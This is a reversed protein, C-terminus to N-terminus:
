KLKYGITVGALISRSKIEEQMLFGTMGPSPRAALHAFNSFYICYDINFGIQFKSINYYVGGGSILGFLGTEVNSIRDEKHSHSLLYDYTLGASLFPVLKEKIPYKLNIKTNFSLQEISTEAQVITTHQGDYNKKYSKEGNKQLYGINSSLNFYKRNFYDVGVFLTNGKLSTRFDLYEGNMPWLLESWDRGYQIKITQGYSINIAFFLVSFITCIITKM